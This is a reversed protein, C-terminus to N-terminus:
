RDFAFLHVSAGTADYTTIERGYHSAASTLLDEDTLKRWSGHTYVLWVRGAGKLEHMDREYQDPSGNWGVSGNTIQLGRKSLGGLDRAYFSFAPESPQFLYM